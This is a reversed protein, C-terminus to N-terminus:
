RSQKFGFCCFCCRYCCLERVEQPFFPAPLAMKSSSVLAVFFLLTLYLKMWTDMKHGTAKEEDDPIEADPSQSNQKDLHVYDKVPSVQQLIPTNERPLKGELLNRKELSVFQQDISRQPSLKESVNLETNEVRKLSQIGLIDRLTTHKELLTDM